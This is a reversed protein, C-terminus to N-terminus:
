TNAPDTATAPFPTGNAVARVSDAATALVPEWEEGLHRYVLQITPFWPSSDTGLDSWDWRNGMMVTPAGLAGALM